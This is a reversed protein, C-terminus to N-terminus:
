SKLGLAEGIDIRHGAIFEQASMARKGEPQLEYIELCDKGTVVIIV